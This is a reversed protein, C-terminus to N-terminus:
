SDESAGHPDYWQFSTWPNITLWQNLVPIMALIWIIMSIEPVNRLFLGLSEFVETENGM